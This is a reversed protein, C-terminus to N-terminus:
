QIVKEIVISQLSALEKLSAFQADTPTFGNAILADKIAKDKLIINGRVLSLVKHDGAGETTFIEGLQDAYYFAIENTVAIATADKVLTWKAGTVGRARFIPSGLQLKETGTLTVETVARCYAPFPEMEHLILDSGRMVPDFTIKM